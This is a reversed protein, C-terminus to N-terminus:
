CTESLNIVNCVNMANNKSVDMQKSQSRSMSSFRAQTQITRASPGVHVSMLVFYACFAFRVGVSKSM